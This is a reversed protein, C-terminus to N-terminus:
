RDDRVIRAAPLELGDIAGDEFAQRSVIPGTGRQFFEGDCAECRYAEILTTMDTGAIPQWGGASPEAVLSRAQCGPCALKAGRRIYAVVSAVAMAGSIARMLYASM